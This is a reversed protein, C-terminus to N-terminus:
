FSQQLDIKSCPSVFLIHKASTGTITYTLVPVRMTSLINLPEPLFVCKLCSFISEFITSTSITWDLHIRDCCLSGWSVALPM